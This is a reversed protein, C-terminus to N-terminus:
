DTKTRWNEKKGGRGDEYLKEKEEDKKKRDRKVEKNKKREIM